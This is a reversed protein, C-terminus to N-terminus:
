PMKRKQAYEARKGIIPPRVINNERILKKEDRELEFTPYSVYGRIRDVQEVTVDLVDAIEKSTHEGWDIYNLLLNCLRPPDLLHDIPEPPPEADELLAVYNQHAWDRWQKTLEKRPHNDRPFAIVRQLSGLNIQPDNLKRVVSEQSNESWDIHHKILSILTKDM